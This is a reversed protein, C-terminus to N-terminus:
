VAIIFTQILLYALPNLGTVGDRRDAIATTLGVRTQVEFHPM